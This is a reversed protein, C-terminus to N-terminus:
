SSLLSLSPTTPYTASIRTPLNNYFFKLVRDISKISQGITEREKKKVFLSYLHKLQPM